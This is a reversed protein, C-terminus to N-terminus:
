DHGKIFNKTLLKNKMDKGEYAARQVHKIKNNRM